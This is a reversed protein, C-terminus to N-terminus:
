SRHCPSARLRRPRCLDARGGARASRPRTSIAPSPRSLRGPRLTSRSTRAPRRNGRADSQLSRRIANNERLRRESSYAGPCRWATAKGDFPSGKDEFASQTIYMLSGPLSGPNCATTSVSPNFLLDAVRHSM